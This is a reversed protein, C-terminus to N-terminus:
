RWQSGSPSDVTMNVFNVHIGLLNSNGTFRTAWWKRPKRLSWKIALSEHWTGNLFPIFHVCLYSKSYPLHKHRHRQFIFPSLFFYHYPLTSPALGRSILIVSPSESLLAGIKISRVWSVSLGTSWVPCFLTWDPALSNFQTPVVRRKVGSCPGIRHTTGLPGLSLHTPRLWLHTLHSDIWVFHERM